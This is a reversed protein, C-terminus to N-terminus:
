IKRIKKNLKEVVVKVDLGHALLGEELTEFSSAVCGVCGLGLDFFVDRTQPYKEIVEAISMDKTIELKKHGKSVKTKKRM